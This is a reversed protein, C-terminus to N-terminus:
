LYSWSDETDPRPKIPIGYRKRKRIKQGMNKTWHNDLQYKHGKESCACSCFVSRQRKKVDEKTVIENGCIRCQLSKNTRKEGFKEVKQRYLCKYCINKSIIFDTVAKDIKCSDCIM